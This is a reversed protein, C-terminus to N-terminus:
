IGHIASVIIFYQLLIKRDKKRKNPGKIRCPGMKLHFNEKLYEVIDM